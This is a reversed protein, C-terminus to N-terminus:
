GVRFLTPKKPAMRSRSPFSTYLLSVLENLASVYQLKMEDEFPQNQQTLLRRASALRADFLEKLDRRIEWHMRDRQDTIFQMLTDEVANIQLMLELRQIMPGLIRLM